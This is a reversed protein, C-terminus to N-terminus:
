LNWGELTIKVDKEKCLVTRKEGPVLSFFNDEWIAGGRLKGCGCKAKLILQYAVVNSKNEITVLTGEDNTEFTAEVTARPLNTVFSLDAYGTM